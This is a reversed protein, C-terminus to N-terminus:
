DLALINEDRCDNLFGERSDAFSLWGVVLNIRVFRVGCM